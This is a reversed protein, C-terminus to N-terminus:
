LEESSWLDSVSVKHDSRLWYDDNIQLYSFARKAVMPPSVLQLWLSSSVGADIPVIKQFGYAKSSTSTDPSSSLNEEDVRSSSTWALSDMLKSRKASNDRNKLEKKSFTKWLNSILLRCFNCRTTTEKWICIHYLSLIENFCIKFSIGRSRLSEYCTGWSIFVLQDLQAELLLNISSRVSVLIRPSHCRYSFLMFHLCIQSSPDWFVWRMLILCKWSAQVPLKFPLLLRIRYCYCLFFICQWLFIILTLFHFCDKPWSLWVRMHPLSM